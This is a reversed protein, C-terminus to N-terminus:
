WRAKKECSSCRLTAPSVERFCLIPPSSCLALLFPSLCRHDAMRRSPFTDESPTHSHTHRWISDNIEQKKKIWLDNPLNVRITWQLSWRLLEKVILGMGLVREGWTLWQIYFGGWLTNSDFINWDMNPQTQIIYSDKAVELVKLTLLLHARVKSRLTM